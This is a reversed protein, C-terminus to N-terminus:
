KSQHMYKKGKSKLEEEDKKREYQIMKKQRFLERRTKHKNKKTHTYTEASSKKQM